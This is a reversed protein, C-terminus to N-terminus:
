PNFNIPVPRVVPQFLNFVESPISPVIVPNTSSTLLAPASEGSPLAKPTEPFLSEGSISNAVSGATTSVQELRQSYIIGSLVLACVVVGFAGALMPQAEFAALVPRLWPAEDVIDNWWGRKRAEGSRLRVIVGRSFNEFYGPPPQEHRKLALLQLLADFNEPDSKM